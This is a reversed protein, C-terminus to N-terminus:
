TAWLWDLDTFALQREYNEINDQVNLILCRESGGNRRGRLGRGVMQFYLNPSYVPRAVVIARTLPADFGERFVGYNVLVRLTGERFDRVARRRTTPKTEGSVWSSRIGKGNLLTAVTKAHEVSTAFILTPWDPHPRGVHQEYAAIIGLTRSPDAGIRREVGDPLWPLDVAARREDPSLTFTGGPITDHDALALVDMEQLERIVETADTGRFAGADLRHSDYRITLRRTEEEDHGRYPTATLGLLLPDDEDRRRSLGVAEMVRTYTPAISGHAEDFVVVGPRDISGIRKRLTQITGVVVHFDSTTEATPQGAWMRSLRLREREPGISTWAQRWAAVAQECLEGRDAVWLVPGKLDDKKVVEILAQVAVRTKGSGTPMSILGRRRDTDGRLMGRTNDVVRRQYSHLCPFSYPGEVEEVPPKRASREGAWEPAFGLDTVFSVARASGAWKRPPDLHDLDSRCAWLAETGFCAVANEAILSDEASESDAELIELLSPPLRTRLADTGVAALLRGADTTRERVRQRAEEIEKSIQWDLVRRIEAESLGLDLLEAVNRLAAEDDTGDQLFVTEGGLAVLRPEDLVRIAECRVVRVGETRRHPRIGRLGPWEDLLPVSDAAGLVEPEPVALQFYDRIREANPHRLLARLADANKPTKGLAHSFPVFDDGTAIYGHERLHQVMPSPISVVKQELRRVHRFQWPDFTTEHRLVDRTFAARGAVSLRPFVAVPGVGISSDFRLSADRIRSGQNRERWQSNADWYIRTFWHETSLDREAEPAAVIELSRLVDLQHGQHELNVTASPDRGGDSPVVDGPLLVSHISQWDGDLTRVRLNSRWRERSRIIQAAPKGMEGVLRWFEKWGDPRLQEMRLSLRRLREEGSVPRVGLAELSQRTRPDAALEPHVWDDDAEDSLTADDCLFLGEDEPEKWSGSVTLVIAGVRHREGWQPQMLAAIEIATRSQTVPPIEGEPRKLVGLWEEVTSRPAGGSLWVEKAPFMENIRALRERGLARHHVWGSPRWASAWRVLAESAGESTSTLIEPAYKLDSPVRLRGDQDPLISSERIQDYLQRRLRDAHESDGKEHRRPLADLHRAPDEQTALAPLSQGILQAARDILEENYPGPLLNQRDNNTKWPANLIGAAWSVTSTPFFAWFYGPDRLRGVPVAWWISVEGGAKGDSWDAAASASLEHSCKAVRWLEQRQGDGLLCESSSDGEEWLCEITKARVDGDVVLRLTEVHPVFLLFEAPFRRLQELLTSLADPKLPLRVINNAWTMLGRFIADAATEPEPDISVPLRLAPIHRADPVFARVREAATARGFRFSGSRSFFEPSDSVGLVSKFGLGFRGIAGTGRKSSMRSFMISDMGPGDLPTGSDACYLATASLRVEIRGGAATLLADASNQILELVQRHAYGGTALDSEEEAYSRLHTPQAEYSRLTKETQGRVYRGLEGHPGAWANPGCRDPWEDMLSTATARGFPGAIRETGAM